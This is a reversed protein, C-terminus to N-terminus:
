IRKAEMKHHPNEHGNVKRRRSFLSFIPTESDAAKHKTVAWPTMASPIQEASGFAPHCINLACFVRM